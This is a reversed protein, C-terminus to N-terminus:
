SPIFCKLEDRGEVCLVEARGSCSEPNLLLLLLVSQLVRSKISELEVSVALTLPQITLLLICGAILLKAVALSTPARTCMQLPWKASLHWPCVVLLM